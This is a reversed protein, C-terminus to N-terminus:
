GSKRVGFVQDAGFGALKLLLKKLHHLTAMNKDHQVSNGASSLFSAQIRQTDFLLEM